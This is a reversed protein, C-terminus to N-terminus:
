LRSSVDLILLPNATDIVCVCVCESVCVCKITSCHDGKHETVFVDVIHFLFSIAVRMRASSLVSSLSHM